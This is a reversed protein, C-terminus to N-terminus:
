QQLSRVSAMSADRTLGLGCTSADSGTRSPPQSALLYNSSIVHRMAGREREGGRAALEPVPHLLPARAGGLDGGGGCGAPPAGGAASRLTAIMGAIAVAVLLGGLGVVATAVRSDGRGRPAPAAGVLAAASLAPEGDADEAAPAAAAPAAGGAAAAKNAAVVNALSVFEYPAGRYAACEAGRHLKHQAWHLLGPAPADDRCFADVDACSLGNFPTRCAARLDRCCAYSSTVPDSGDFKVGACACPPQPQCDDFVFGLIDQEHPLAHGPGGAAHGYYADLWGCPLQGAACKTTLASKCGEEGLAWTNYDSDYRCYCQGAPAAMLSSAAAARAGRLAAAAVASVAAAAPEAAAAPPARAAQGQEADSAAAAERQRQARREAAASASALRQQEQEQQQRAAAAIQAAAAAEAAAEAQVEAAAAAAAEAGDAEEEGLVIVAEERLRRPAAAGYGQGADGYGGEALRRRTGDSPGAGYGQEADGYGGEALRRRTGEAPGAGYGQGADGYGGEALRRRTGEAPSAGYGQAGEGYGGDQLLARGARAELGIEIVPEPAFGDQADAAAHHVAGLVLCAALLLVVPQARM